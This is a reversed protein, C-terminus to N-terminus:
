SEAETEGPRGGFREARFGAPPRTPVVRGYARSRTRTSLAALEAIEAVADGIRRAEARVDALLRAAGAKVEHLSGGMEKIETQGNGIDARSDDLAGEGAGGVIEFKVVQGL